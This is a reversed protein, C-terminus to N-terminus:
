PLRLWQSAAPSGSWPQDQWNADRRSNGHCSQRPRSPAEQGLNWSKEWGDLIITVNRPLRATVPPRGHLPSARGHPASSPELTEVCLSAVANGAMAPWVAALRPLWKFKGVVSYFDTWLYLGVSWKINLLAFCMKHEQNTVIKGIFQKKKKGIRILWPLVCGEGWAGGTLICSQWHANCFHFLRLYVPNCAIGKFATFHLKRHLRKFCQINIISPSRQFSTLAMFHVEYLNGVTAPMFSNSVLSCDFGSKDTLFVFVM